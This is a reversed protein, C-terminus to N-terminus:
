TTVFVTPVKRATRLLRSATVISSATVKRWHQFGAVPKARIGRNLLAGAPSCERRFLREATDYDSTVVLDVHKNAPKRGFHIQQVSGRELEVYAVMRDKGGYQRKLDSPLGEVVYQVTMTFESVLEQFYPDDARALEAARIVARIWEPSLFLSGEPQENM